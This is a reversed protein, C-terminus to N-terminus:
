KGSIPQQKSAFRMFLNTSNNPQGHLHILYFPRKIELFKVEVRKFVNNQLESQIAHVSIFAYCNSHMLYTKISETSGLQMEVNLHSLKINFPQLAHLIVELTGSGHERLLLPLQKLEEPKSIIKKATANQANTILVIEDDLFSTYKILKNKSHGEIIGLDIEKNTLAQEIQETNGNHLAIEINPYKKHFGALLPPIVYQAVTSSAGLKLLGQHRNALDNMEEEMNRYLALLQETHQLLVEGAATLQIQNGTREFLKLQFHQELEQIHKTVAPQTIFLANAAKTFNLRKAVTYFVQLRFDFMGHIYENERKNLVLVAPM